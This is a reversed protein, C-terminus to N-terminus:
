ASRRSRRRASRAEFEQPIGARVYDRIAEAPIIPEKEVGAGVFGPLAPGRADLFQQVAARILEAQTCGENRALLALLHRQRADLYVTTKTRTSMGDGYWVYSPHRRHPHCADDDVGSTGAESEALRNPHGSRDAVLPRTARAVSRSLTNM